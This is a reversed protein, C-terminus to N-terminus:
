QVASTVGIVTAARASPPRPPLQATTPSRQTPCASEPVLSHPGHLSTRSKHRLPRPFSFTPNAPRAKPVLLSPPPKRAAHLTSRPARQIANTSYHSHIERPAAHRCDGEIEPEPWLASEISIDLPRPKAALDVDAPHVVAISAPRLDPTSLTRILWGTHM